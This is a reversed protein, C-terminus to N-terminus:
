LLRPVRSKLSCRVFLIIAALYGPGFLLWHFHAQYDPQTAHSGAICFALVIVLGALFFGLWDLVGAKLTRRTTSRYLIIIAFVILATSVLVPALVPSAWAVPILFLIDWEMVSCPWGILIKLWVYYFIDWVAFIVLFFSFRQTRDRGILWSGTLILVMAAAERGVETLLLRKWLPGVGFSTLPFSFGEPYFIVRLYVVVAAEVYAFAISFLVVICFRRMVAKFIEASIHTVEM